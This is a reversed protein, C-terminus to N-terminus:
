HGTMTHPAAVPKSEPSGRERLYIGLVLLVAISLFESQWNQFSEYWFQPDGLTEIMTQSPQHHQVAEENMRRTSGALHLWFSALFLTVLALSLSHSYLKLLLGGRHVPWPADPDGRHASPSEDEPNDENPKKSESAGKQFLFITLLVYTAMQLFESEWNEFTASIFHGSTLYMLFGIEPLEHLRLEEANARWGTLAQGIFSVLFLAFLTLSLGNDRLFRRM